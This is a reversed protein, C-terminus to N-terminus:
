LNVRTNRPQGLREAGFKGVQPGGKRRKRRAEQLRAPAVDLRPFAAQELELARGLIAFRDRIAKMRVYAPTGPQPPAAKFGQLSRADADHEAKAQEYTTRGTRLMGQVREVAAQFQPLKGRYLVGTAGAEQTETDTLIKKERERSAKTRDAKDYQVRRDHLQHAGHGPSSPEPDSASNPTLNVRAM